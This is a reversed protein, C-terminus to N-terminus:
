RAASWPPSSDPDDDAFVFRKGGLFAAVAAILSMIAAAGFVILLGDHFPGAILNPFFTQGTLATPTPPRYSASSAPRASCPRM